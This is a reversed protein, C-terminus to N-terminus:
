RRERGQGREKYKIFRERGESVSDCGEIRGCVCVCVIERLTRERGARSERERKCEEM